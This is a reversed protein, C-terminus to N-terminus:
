SDTARLEHLRILLMPIAVFVMMTAAAVIGSDNVLLAVIAGIANASLGHMLAGHAQQWRRFLGAPKTLLVAMVLMSALLAKSWVSVGILHMNMMLKRWIIAGILDFHGTLLQDMARGIHSDAENSTHNGGNLLWLGLLAIGGFIMIWLLLKGWHVQLQMRKSFLRLWVIGFAAGATIAGGANTGLAPSAMYFLIVLFLLGSSVVAMRKGRYYHMIGAVGLTAAGIWVGMYENGVGYYRAGIMPDYGLVSSRMAHVGTFGDIFLAIVTLACITILSIYVRFRTAIWATALLFMIFFVVLAQTSWGIKVLWGMLLMTLPSIMLTYLLLAMARYGNNWQLLVMLLSILLVIIQYIVFPYLLLPRLKYVQAIEKNMQMLQPLTHDAPVAQLPMGIMNLPQELSFQKLITPALDYMSVIGQRHTSPSYLLKDGNDLPTLMLLPSFMWKNSWAEQNVIPSFIWLQDAPQLSRALAGIFEDVEQLVELKAQEFIHPEYSRQEEYLRQLDGLELVVVGPSLSAQWMTFLRDYNTTIGSAKRADITTLGEGVQGYEVLGSDDMLMFPAQRLDGYVYTSIDNDQLVTGFSGLEGRSGIHNNAQEMSAFDPIILEASGVDLGHFRLYQQVITGAESRENRQWAQLTSLTSGPSSSGISLYTDEMGREPARINMAAIAGHAILAEVNPMRELYHPQLELFSLGPISVLTVRSSAVEGSAADTSPISILVIFLIWLPLFIGFTLKMFRLKQNLRHEDRVHRPKVNM